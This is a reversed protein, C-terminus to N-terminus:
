LAGSLFGVGLLSILGGCLRVAKLGLPWRVAMGILIGGLHLLGTAVMFGATFLVPNAAEPLEAGHAHGHFIAFAGVVVAALWLPPRLAAAVMAGIVIASAAIGEEIFPVPVALLGLVGGVAMVAPFVVPLTWVAKEGMFAGWLGVAVMAVVHDWGLVPHLFGSTFGGALSSADAHAHATGALWTSLLLIALTRLHATSMVSLPSLKSRM